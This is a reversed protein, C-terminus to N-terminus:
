CISTPLGTSGNNPNLSHFFECVFFDLCVLSFNVQKLIKHSYDKIHKM